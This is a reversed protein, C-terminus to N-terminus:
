KIEYQALVQVVRFLAFNVLTLGAFCIVVNVLLHIRWRLKSTIPMFHIELRLTFFAILYGYMALLSGGYLIGFVVAETKDWLFKLLATVLVWEILRFWLESLGTYFRALVEAWEQESKRANFDIKM